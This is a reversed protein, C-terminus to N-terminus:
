HPYCEGMNVWFLNCAFKRVNFYHVDKIYFPAPYYLRVIFPFLWGTGSGTQKAAITTPGSLSRIWFFGETVTGSRWCIMGSYSKNSTGIIAHGNSIGGFSKLEVLMPPPVISEIFRIGSNWSLLFFVAFLKLVVEMANTIGSLWDSNQKTTSVADVADSSNVAADAVTSFGKLESGFRVPCSWFQREEILTESVHFQQFPNQWFGRVSNEFPRFVSIAVFETWNFLSFEVDKFYNTEAKPCSHLTLFYM